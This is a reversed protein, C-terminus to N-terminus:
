YTWTVGSVARNAELGGFLLVVSDKADYVMSPVELGVPHQAPSLLTWNGNAFSWTASSASTNSLAGGFLLVYSDTADWALGSAEMPPPALTLSHSRNTWAGAVYTWTDSYFHYQQGILDFGGFLLVYGDGSDYTMAALNRVAPAPGSTENSWVGALYSWTDALYGRTSNLGGFLLVYGDMADYTLSAAERGCPGSSSTSVPAWTGASFTWTDADQAGSVNGTGGFLLVYGDAQDYTMAAFVRASPAIAPDLSTWIGHSYTWTDGVIVGSSDGGGFLVVYHDAEDYAMTAGFRAAPQHPVVRTWVSAHYTWTDNLDTTFPYHSGGFLVLPSSATGSAVQATTRSSPSFAPSVRTWTGHAFQWTDSLNVAGSGVQAGSFLIAAHDLPSYALAGGYRAAPAGAPALRTWKGASFIWTDGFAKTHTAGGFLLVWGDAADYTM